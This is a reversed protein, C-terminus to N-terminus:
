LGGGQMWHKRYSAYRADLLGPLYRRKLLDEIHGELLQELESLEAPNSYRGILKVLDRCYAKRRELLPPAAKAPMPQITM